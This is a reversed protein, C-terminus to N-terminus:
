FCKNLTGSLKNVEGSYIWYPLQHGEVRGWIWVNKYPNTYSCWAYLKVGWDLTDMQYGCDAGPETRLPAGDTDNGVYVADSNNPTPSPAECTERPAVTGPTAAGATATMLGMAMVTSGLIAAARQSINM